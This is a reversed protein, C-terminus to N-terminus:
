LCYPMFKTVKETEEIAVQDVLFCLDDTMDDDGDGNTNVTHLARSDNSGDLNVDANDCQRRRKQAEMCAMQEGLSNQMVPQTSAIEDASPCTLEHMMGTLVEVTMPERMRKPVSGFQRKGSGDQKDLNSLSQSATASARQFESTANRPPTTQWSEPTAAGIHSPSGFEANMPARSSASRAFSVLSAHGVSTAGCQAHQEQTLSVRKASSSHTRASAM